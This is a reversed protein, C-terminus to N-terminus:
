QLPESCPNFVHISNRRRQVSLLDVWKENGRGIEILRKVFHGVITDHALATGFIIPLLLYAEVADLKTLLYLTFLLAMILSLCFAPKRRYIQIERKYVAAFEAQAKPERPAFPNLAILKM